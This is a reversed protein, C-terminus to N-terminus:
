DRAGIEECFEIFLVRPLLNQRSWISLSVRYCRM